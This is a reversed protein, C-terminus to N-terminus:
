PRRRPNALCAGKGEGMLHAQWGEDTGDVKKKCLSCHNLKSNKARQFTEVIEAPIKGAQKAECESLVHEHFNAIETVQGCFECRKLMPCYKWYHLDLGKEPDGTFAENREGCFICVNEDLEEPNEDLQDNNNSQFSLNQNNNNNSNNNINNNNNNELDYSDKMPSAAKKPGGGNQINGQLYKLEEIQNKLADIENKKQREMDAQQKMRQSALESHTPKGEARDLSDLVNRINIHLM